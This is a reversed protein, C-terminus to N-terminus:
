PLFVFAKACFMAHALDTWAVDTDDPRLANLMATDLPQSWTLRAMHQMANDPDPYRERVRHALAAARELVFPDNMLALSQAPVSSVTRKGCPRNPTPRDFAELMPVAFNRRVELYLSRRREGDLPGSKAPRGRGTMDDTLHIAVPPGGITSDLEGSSWLMADRVQEATLRRVHMRHLLVNDPDIAEAGPQRTSAQAYTSSLVIRRVLDKVSGGDALTQALHDLLEPHSPPTGMAGMDDLLPTLGRGMLHHWIRNATTRWLLPQEPSTIAHALDLRGSGTIATVERHQGGLLAPVLRPAAIGPQSPEGRIYVPQEVTSGEVTHLVPVPKPLAATHELLTRCGRRLADDNTRSLRWDLRAPGDARLDEVPAAWPATISLSVADIQLSGEGDDVAVLYARHGIYKAVDHTITTWQESDVTQLHGEFLLANFADMIYDAVIIRLIGKGRVRWHVHNDEITFEPSSATGALDDGLLGSHLMGRHTLRPGSETPFWTGEPAMAFAHGDFTWDTGHEFDAHVIHTPPLLPEPADGPRPRGAGMAGAAVIWAELRRIDGNLTARTVRAQAVGSSVAANQDRGALARRSSRLMNSLGQYDRASLPDFKHDHCRACSITVGLLGRGLADLQDSRHDDEDRLVDVPAHVAQHMCWFGTGLPADNLGTIADIRPEVLDGAVLERAVRGWPVGTNLARVLWDRFRWAGPLPYDFEHGCTEAYSFADLWHRAWQEGFAPSALLQDVIEARSEPTDTAAFTDLVHPQPPLGTLDFSVRRLWTRSDAPPSPSLGTTNLKAAIFLDISGETARRSLPQWAWHPTWSAGDAIWQRLVDIEKPQLPPHGEPPMRDDIDTATIRAMLRSAAPDGPVIAAGGRRDLVALDRTDLRLDAKRTSVDRGHCPLCNATLVRQVDRQFDVEALPMPLILSLALLNV